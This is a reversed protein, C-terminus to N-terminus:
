EEDPDVRRRASRGDPEVRRRNSPGPFAVRRRVSPGGPEVRTATVGGSELLLCGAGNELALRSGIELLLYAPV